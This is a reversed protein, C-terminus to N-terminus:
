IQENTPIFLDDVNTLTPDSGRNSVPSNLMNANRSIDEWRFLVCQAVVGYGAALGIVWDGDKAGDSRREITRRMIEIATCAAVNGLEKYVEGCIEIDNDSLDLLSQLRKIIQPGGPHIVWNRVDEKAIKHKKLIRNTTDALAQSASKILKPTLYGMYGEDFLQMGVHEQTNPLAICTHDVIAPLFTKGTLSHLSTSFRKPHRPGLIVTSTTLDGFLAATILQGKFRGAFGDFERKQADKIVHQLGGSFIGSNLEVSTLLCAGEPHLTLHDFCRAFGAMGFVCGGATYFMYDLDDNLGLSAGLYYAPHPATLGPVVYLLGTIDSPQLGALDLAEKATKLSSTLCPDTLQETTMTLGRPVQGNEFKDYDLYERPDLAFFRNDIGVSTYCKRTIDEAETGRIQPEVRCLYETILDAFTEQSVKHEFIYRSTSAILATSM